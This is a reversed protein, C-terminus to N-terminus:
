VGWRGSDGSRTAGPESPGPAYRVSVAAVAATRGEEEAANNAASAGRAREREPLSAVSAVSRYHDKRLNM